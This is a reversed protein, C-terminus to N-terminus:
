VLTGEADLIMARGSQGLNLASLFLGIQDLRVDVGGVASVADGDDRLGLPANIGPKRDTFFIYADTWGVGTASAGIGYWPRARTAYGNDAVVDVRDIGGSANRRVWKVERAGPTNAIHEADTRGGEMRCVALYNGDAGGVYIMGIQPTIRLLE